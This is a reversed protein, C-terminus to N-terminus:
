PIIQQPMDFSQGLQEIHGFNLRSGVPLQVDPLFQILPKLYHYCARIGGQKAALKAGLQGAPM